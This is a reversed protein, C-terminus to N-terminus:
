LNFINKSESLNYVHTIVGMHLANYQTHCGGLQISSSTNRKYELNYSYLQIEATQKYQFSISYTISNM